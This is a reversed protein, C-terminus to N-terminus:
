QAMGFAADMNSVDGRPRRYHSVAYEGWNYREEADMGIFNGFAAAEDDMSDTEEPATEGTPTVDMVVPALATGKFRFKAIKKAKWVEANFQKWLSDMATIELDTKTGEGKALQRHCIDLIEWPIYFRGTPLSRELDRLKERDGRSLLM